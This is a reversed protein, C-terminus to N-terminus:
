NHNPIQTYTATSLNERIKIYAGGGGGRKKNQKTKNQKKTGEWLERKLVLSRFSTKTFFKMM